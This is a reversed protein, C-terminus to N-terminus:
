NKQTEPKNLFFGCLICAPKLKRLFRKLFEILLCGCSKSKGSSLNDSVVVKENGCICECNWLHKNRNDKGAYGTVTLRGYKEGIRNKFSPM